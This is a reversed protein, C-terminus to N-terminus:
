TRDLMRWSELLYESPIGLGGLPLSELRRRSRQVSQPCPKLETFSNNSSINTGLRTLRRESKNWSESCTRLRARACAGSMSTQFRAFSSPQVITVMSLSKALRLKTPACRRLNNCSPFQVTRCMSSRRRRSATFIPSKIAFEDFPKSSIRASGLPVAELGM